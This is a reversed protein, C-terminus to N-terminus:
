LSVKVGDNGLSFVIEGVLVSSDNNNVIFDVSEFDFKVVKCSFNSVEFLFENIKIVTFVEDVLSTVVIDGSISGSLLSVFVGDTNEVLDDVLKSTELGSTVREELDGLLINGTGELSDGLAVWDLSEDLEGGLEISFFELVNNVLERLDLRSDLSRVSIVSVTFLFRELVVSSQNSFDSGDSTFLLLGESIGLSFLAVILNGQGGVFIFFGGKLLLDSEISFEKVLSFSLESVGDSRVISSELISILSNLSDLSGNIDEILVLIVELSTFIGGVVKVSWTISRLNLIVSFPNRRWVTTSTTIIWSTLVTFVCLHWSRREFVIFICQM